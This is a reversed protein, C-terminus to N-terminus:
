EVVDCQFGFADECCRFFDVPRVGEALVLDEMLLINRTEKALLTMISKVVLTPTPWSFKELEDSKMKSLQLSILVQHGVTAVTTFPLTGRVTGLGRGAFDFVTVDFEYVYTM